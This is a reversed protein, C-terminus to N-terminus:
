GVVGGGGVSVKVRVNVVTGAVDVNVCVKVLVWVKVETAGDSGGGVTVLVRVDVGTGGVAVM